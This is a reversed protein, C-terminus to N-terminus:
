AANFIEKRDPHFIPLNPQCVAGKEPYEGNVFFNYIADNVCDSEDSLSVHQVDDVDMLVAMETLPTHFTPRIRVGFGNLHLLAGNVFSESMNRASEFPTVPDYTNGVFLIPNATEVNFNGEYREAADFKWQACAFHNSHGWFDLFWRTTEEFDLYTPRMGPVLSDVRPKKDGCRIGLIAEAAPPIVDPNPTSPAPTLAEIAATLNGTLLGDLATAISIFQGPRYM